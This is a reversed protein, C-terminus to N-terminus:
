GLRQKVLASVQSMDARGQIRPKLLAMVKGMDRMSSANSSSIAADIAAVLAADDLPKPMYSTVVTIEFAEQDALDQRGAASYQQYSDRRQKLMKELVAFVDEDSLDKRTDVEQQKIAALILRIIGLRAKDGGKMAVKMDEIIHAKLESM